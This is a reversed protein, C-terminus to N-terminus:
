GEGKLKFFSSGSGSFYWGQGLEDAVEKLYPYCVCASEFLDNLEAVDPQSELIEKSEMCFWRTTPLSYQRSKDRISDAFAKYVSKTDCFLSPTYIECELVSEQMSEIRDGKGSVNASMLGSAFFSVDAGIHKAIGVLEDERLGLSLFENAGRLFTGANASGGGLGAGQPIRKQVEIHLSELGLTERGQQSLYESLVCKAKFILNEQIECGFDGKICFSDKQTICMEDYLSGQALVFRSNLMHFGAEFGVIKLFINVKPYVRFTM